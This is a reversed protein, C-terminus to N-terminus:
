RYTSCLKHRHRPQFSRHRHCGNNRSLHLSPLTIEVICLNGGRAHFTLWPHNKTTKRVHCFLEESYFECGPSYEMPFVAGAKQQRLDWFMSGNEYFQIQNAFILHFNVLLQIVSNAIDFFFRIRLMSPIKGHYLSRHRITHNLIIGSMQNVFFFHVSM